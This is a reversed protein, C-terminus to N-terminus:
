RLLTTRFFCLKNYIKKSFSFFMDYFVNQYIDPEQKNKWFRLRRNDNEFAVEAKREILDQLLALRKKRTHIFPQHFENKNNKQILKEILHKNLQLTKSYGARRGEVLESHVSLSTPDNKQEILEMCQVSSITLLISIQFITRLHMMIGPKQTAHLIFFFRSLIL